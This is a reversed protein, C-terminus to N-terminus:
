QSSLCFYIKNLLYRQKRYYIEGKMWSRRNLVIITIFEKNKWFIELAKM